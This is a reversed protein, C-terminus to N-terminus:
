RHWEVEFDDIEIGERALTAIVRAKERLPVPATVVHGTGTAEIGLRGLSAIAERLHGNKLIIVIRAAGDLERQFEVPTADRRLMGREIMLVRDALALVDDPRHSAVVLTMGERKLGRLLDLLEARGRADLNATPEDLLLVRPSGILALALALRQKMGGSLADVRKDAQDGIGLQDLRALAQDTAVRKLKAIFAVMEGVTLPSIPLDQPVYGIAERVARGDRQPDHGVVAITGSYRALGLLCRMITTKGAGNPGWLAVAEGPAIAFEIGALADVSGYHKTVNRLAIAATPEATTATVITGM